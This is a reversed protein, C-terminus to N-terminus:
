IKILYFIIMNKLSFDKVRGVLFNFRSSFGLVKEVVVVTQLRCRLLYEEHSERRLDKSYGGYTYWPLTPKKTENKSFEDM